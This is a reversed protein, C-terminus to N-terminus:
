VIQEPDGLLPFPSTFQVKLALIFRDAVDCHAICSDMKAGEHVMPVADRKGAEMINSIDRCNQEGAFRRGM